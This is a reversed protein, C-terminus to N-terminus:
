REENLIVDVVSLLTMTAQKSEVEGEAWIEETEREAVFQFNWKGSEKVSIDYRYNGDMFKCQVKKRVFKLLLNQGLLQYGKGTVTHNHILQITKGDNELKFTLKSWAPLNVAKGGSLIKSARSELPKILDELKTLEFDPFVM